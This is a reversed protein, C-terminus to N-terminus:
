YSEVTLGDIREFHEVNRTLVPEDHVLGVAGIMVDPDDLPEGRSRLTAAIEGAKMGCARDFPLEHMESLLAETRAREESTASSLHIGEWLEMVTIATVYPTGAADIEAIPEETAHNGHLLHILFTTDLIM